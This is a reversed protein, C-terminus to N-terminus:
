GNNEQDKFIGNVAVDYLVDTVSVDLSKARRRVRGVMYFLDVSNALPFIDELHAKLSKEKGNFNYLIEVGSYRYWM